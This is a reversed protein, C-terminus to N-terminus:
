ANIPKLSSTYVLPAPAFFSSRPSEMCRRFGRSLNERAIALLVVDAVIGIAFWVGFVVAASGPGNLFRGAQAVFVL